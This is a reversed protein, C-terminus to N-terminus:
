TDGILEIHLDFLILCLNLFYDLRTYVLDKNDIFAVNKILYSDCWVKDVVVPPSVLCGGPKGTLSYIVL